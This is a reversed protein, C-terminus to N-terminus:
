PTKGKKWRPFLAGTRLKYDEYKEGFRLVLDKEEYHIMIPTYIVVFIAAVILLFASNVFFNFTILLGFEGLTQPHRVHKYIGGFLGTDPSPVLTEKGADREGKVMIAVLPTSIIAGVVIGMWLEPVLHLTLGSIPFWIWLLTTIIWGFMFVSSLMRFGKCVNWTKEKFKAELRLPQVSVLYTAGFLGYSALLCSFNLWPIMM